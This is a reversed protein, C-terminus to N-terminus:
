ENRLSEVPNLNAAKFTHYSITLIAVVLAVIASGIFLLPDMDTRYVFSDLWSNMALYAIPAALVSSIIVLLAFDKSLMYMIGSVTAGLVKRMGIEKTKQEGTYAALGFLGLCAILIALWTFNAVLAAFKRDNEFLQAFSEDFFTYEFPYSPYVEKWLKEIQGLSSSVDAASTKISLMRSANPVYNIILPEIKHQMNEFHFDKIVGVITLSPRREFNFKKGIPDDWGLERAASENIMVSEQEDAPFEKSFARGKALEMGVTNFFNDDVWMVSCVWTEDANYGDPRIGGWRAMGNGPMTSSAGVSKVSSINRLENKFTEAQNQLVQNDLAINIVQEPQFGLNKNQIYELQNYAISTGIIMAISATFQTVVLVRRLWIGSKSTGFSGRLITIPKFGSLVFAPYIGSLLGLLTISGVLGLLLNTNTFFYLIFSGKIPLGLMPAFAEVLLLGIILSAFCLIVSELLFQLIMQGRAAGVVKRLGVEKARNTSRATALNMFNFAAIIIIFFAVIILTYVYDIDTKFQNHGDYLIGSSHLHADLFPQLQQGFTGWEVHERLLPMLANQVKEASAPSDLLVYTPMGIRGWSELQRALNSDAETPVLSLLVDMQLHSNAPVDKMIGTVEYVDENNLEITKGIPNESGFLKEKWSETLVAKRPESLVREPDGQILEFDFVSFLSSTTYVLDKTYFSQDGITILERGSDRYRVQEVVEPLEEKLAPGMAMFNIGALNESVGLNNDELLVRYIRDAKSHFKDFSFEFSVYLFILISSFIAIGLGLINIISTSKNKWLNRFAIKLYNNLM